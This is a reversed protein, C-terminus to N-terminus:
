ITSRPPLKLRFRLCIFPRPHLPGEPGCGPGCGVGQGAEGPAEEVVIHTNTGGFGFSSIGACRPEGASPWSTARVPISFPTNELSINPNLDQFNRQPPIEGHQLALVVKILGAIGAAAELHGINAKVSGVWCSRGNARPKGIVATLSEIEIPDGLATGTGHAEVYGIRGPAVGANALAQRLVAQQALLNPATLGASRGDQNVASGRIVALVPDGHAQAESLRKLVMVGCGEGRVYGDARADFTKCRGDGALMGWKALATSGEPFLTLNVGGVLALSCEGTRLSNCALHAAVLSSSCATDIAMSPGRLNLLYSLRNAVLSYATGTTAYPDIDNGTAIHTWAYESSCIGVYVGTQSGALGDPAQGARELAEWAVELLLRQQPDMGAAERGSIGFFAPDFQDVDDLFGGWCAASLGAAQLRAVDAPNWRTPPALTIADGGDRLLRWFSEPDSAGGPFRCGIGIIAIPETRAKEVADLKAQMRELAALARKVPSIAEANPTM